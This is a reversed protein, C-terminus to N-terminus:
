EKKENYIFFLSKIKFLPKETEKEQIITDEDVKLKLHFALSWDENRKVVYMQNIVLDQQNQRM